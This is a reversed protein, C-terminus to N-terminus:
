GVFYLSQILPVSVQLWNLDPNDRRFGPTDSLEVDTLVLQLDDGPIFATM